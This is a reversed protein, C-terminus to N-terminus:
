AFGHERLFDETLTGAAKGLTKVVWKGILDTEVNVRDGPTKRGLTTMSLTQPILAVDFTGESVGTLTLSIGDVAVSGKLIMGDTLTRDARFTMRVEGPAEVRESVTAVGDVHGTVFHGSLRGDSRLSRELNVAAGPQLQHFNTLRRTEELVDFALSGADRGIVTLCCGNVAVSDGLGADATVLSAAIQLRWAEARATFAVVKGAEEVIGTFM